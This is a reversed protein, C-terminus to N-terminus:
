PLTLSVEKDIPPYCVGSKENCGQYGAALTLGKATPARELAIEAQIPKEYTEMRGFTPDNKVKGAPLKVSKIVVGRSNKLAFRIRDRYLYYGNAPILDVILTTPSSATVKLKFAQDPELLEPEKAGSFISGLREQIGSAVSQQAMVTAHTSLSIAALLLCKSIHHKFM